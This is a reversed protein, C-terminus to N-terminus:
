DEHEGRRSRFLAASGASRSRWLRREAIRQRTVRREDSMQRVKDWGILEGLRVPAPSEGVSPPESGSASYHDITEDSTHVNSSPPVNQGGESTQGLRSAAVSREAGDIDGGDLHSGVLRRVESKTNQPNESRLPPVASTEYDFCADEGLYHTM